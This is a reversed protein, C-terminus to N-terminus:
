NDKIPTGDAKFRVIKAKTRLTEILEKLLKQSMTSALQEKAEDFSPPASVKRDEVLIIHWGFQTKVPKTVIDGPNLAFAAKSFEPVMQGEGFWGLDGGSAASPGTSYESALKAFEGGAQLKKIIEMAKEESDLLIHRAKIQDGSAMESKTESYIKQLAEETVQSGITKTLFIESIIQDEVDLLRKKVDPDKSFGARRGELTVLKSDIARTLLSPYVAELSMKRYQEPLRQAMGIIESLFIPKGDVTAVIKTEMKELPKLKTEANSSPIALLLHFAGFLVLSKLFFLKMISTM